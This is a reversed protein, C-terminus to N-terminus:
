QPLYLDTRWLYSRPTLIADIEYGGLHYHGENLPKAKTNAKFGDMQLRSSCLMDPDTLFSQEKSGIFVPTDSFDANLADLGLVHDIHGHTLLIADLRGLHQIYERFDAGYYGPDIVIVGKGASLVYANCSFGQPNNFQRVAMDNENWYGNM